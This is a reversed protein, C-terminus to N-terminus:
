FQVGDVGGAMLIVSKLFMFSKITWIAEAIMTIWEYNWDLNKGNRKYIRQTIKKKQKM